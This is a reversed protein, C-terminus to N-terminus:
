PCYMHLRLSPVPRIAAQWPLPKSRQQRLSRLRGPTGPQHLLPHQETSLTTSRPELPRTASPSPNRLPTRGLPCVSPLRLPPPSISPSRRAPLRAPTITPQSPSPRSPKRRGLASQDAIGGDGSAQVQSRQVPRLHASGPRRVGNSVGGISSSGAGHPRGGCDLPQGPNECPRTRPLSESSRAVGFSKRRGGALAKNRPPIGGVSRCKKQSRSLGGM